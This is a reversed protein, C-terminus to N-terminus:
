FLAALGLFVSRRQAWQPAGVGVGSGDRLQYSRDFLNLLALRGEVASTASSRWTHSLTTNVVAYSPLAASNPAGADPTRRLGSGFLFDAGVRSQGFKYSVGGAATHTQDHDLYVYNQAIYALKDATFLSEGSVVSIGKAKQITLNLFGGWAKDNYNASLEVGRAYGREYNFPSLILAQGFQGEDILNRIQKYYADVAVTLAPSLKRSVGVDFYHSRESKVDRSTAVDPQNSTGAYLDVSKQSALEQPPPTFYRSYGAHVATDANIAYALNVRPSWQHEDTFASVQDYRLGYNLTLAPNIRWEDQTYLSSLRGVKSSNDSILLPVNGSQAGTSDVPFVAVSNNSQTIQRTYQGGFRLTHSATLRYAADAQLSNASNSRLTDSAVGNFILDGIPDPTFRLNSYQRSASVQYDFRDSTKQFSVAMFRNVETQRENVQSSPYSNTGATTDSYGSLSFGAPQGPNVPIQFRGNYSGFILGIRTSDDVFYSLNGFGKSQRTRDHEATRSPLPNEIGLSNATYSGSLFYSLKGASGFFEASPEFTNNSGLLLGLRGGPTVSGLKSEIDVIGATRLGYQAPLAGTLFDIKNIFRTDFAGGFGSIAEPLQIGDIRYQVNGHDDRVHLSGSAKADKAVGPLRLLVEDVSTASGKGLSEILGQDVTYVTTGVAPSLEMRAAKLRQLTVDVTSLTATSSESDLPAAAATNQANVLGCHLTAAAGLALVACSIRHRVFAPARQCRDISLIKM